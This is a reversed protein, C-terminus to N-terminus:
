YGQDELSKKLQGVKASASQGALSSDKNAGVVMCQKGLSITMTKEKNCDQKGRIVMADDDIKVVTWKEGNLTLGEGFVSNDKNKVITALRAAEAQTLNLNACTWPNGAQDYIGCHHVGQDVYPKIWAEWGSM